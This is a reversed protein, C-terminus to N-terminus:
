VIQDIRISSQKGGPGKIKVPNYTDQIYQKIRENSWFSPVMLNRKSENKAHLDMLMSYKVKSTNPNSEFRALEEPSMADYVKSSLKSSRQTTSKKEKSSLKKKEKNEKGIKRKYVYKWKDDRGKYRKIYKAKILLPKKVGEKERIIKSSTTKNLRINVVEKLSLSKKSKRLINERAVSM